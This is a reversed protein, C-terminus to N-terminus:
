KLVTDLIAKALVVKPESLGIWNYVNTLAFLAICGPIFTIVATIVGIMGYHFPDIYGKDYPRWKNEENNKNHKFAARLNRQAIYGIVVAVVLFLFGTILNQICNIKVVTLGLNVADQANASVLENLKDVVSAISKDINDM